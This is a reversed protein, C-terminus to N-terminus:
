RTEAYNIVTKVIESVIKEKILNTDFFRAHNHKLKEWTTASYPEYSFYKINDTVINFRTQFDIESDYIENFINEFTEFGNEKLFKLVGPQGVILFPHYYAIPKFTKETVFLNNGNVQTEAVLSFHTSDYWDPVFNRQFEAQNQDIDGPIMVGEAIYSILSNKDNIKAWEFILDRHPKKLRMLSLFSKKYTKNPTYNSTKLLYNYWLSESYWFWNKNKLNLKNELNPSVWNEALRDILIKFGSDSLSKYWINNTNICNTLILSSHKDYTKKSDYYEINFYDKYIFQLFDAHFTTLDSEHSILTIKNM